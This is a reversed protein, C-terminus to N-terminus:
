PKGKSLASTRKAKKSKKPKISNATPIIVTVVNLHYVYSYLIRSAIKQAMIVGIKSYSEDKIVDKEIILPDYPNDYNRLIIEIKDPDSFAKIDMYKTKDKKKKNEAKRSYELYDSAIEETCLASIYALRPPANHELFFNQLEESVFSVHESEVSISIDLATDRNEYKKLVLLRELPVVPKKNILMFVLYYIIFFPIFSFGMAVWIATVGFIKGFVAVFIPYLISDPLVAVLLSLSLHGTSEYVANFMYPFVMVIGSIATLILGLRADASDALNYFNLIPQQLAILVVATVAAYIVGIRTAAKFTRCVGDNDREGHLIGILPEGAYLSGRGITRVLSLITKIMTVLALISTGNAFVSLIINNVVTGSASDLINDISSPLGRRMCDLSDIITRKNPAYFRFKLKIKRRKMFVFASIMQALAGAASGIGLGAIKYEESLFQIAAISVAINVVVNIVSSIMRETQYGFSASVMQFVSGIAFFLIMMCATRIYLQGYQAVLATAKAGGAIGMVANTAFLCMAVFIMDVIITFTLTISFMRNYGDMDSKGMRELMKLFGGQMIMGTFSLMMGIIPIGLAVAAVADQSLLHGSIITDVMFTMSQVFAYILCSPMVKKVTNVSLIDPKLNNKM